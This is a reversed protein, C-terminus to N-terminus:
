RYRATKEEEEEAAAEIEDERRRLAVYCSSEMNGPRNDGTFFQIFYFLAGSERTKHRARRWTDEAAEAEGRREEERRGKEGTCRQKPWTRSGPQIKTYGRAILL